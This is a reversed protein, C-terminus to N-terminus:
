DYNDDVEYFANKIEVLHKETVKRAVRVGDVWHKRRRQWWGVRLDGRVRVRILEADILAEIRLLKRAQRRVAVEPTETMNENVVRGGM